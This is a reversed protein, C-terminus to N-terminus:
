AFWSRLMIGLILGIFLALSTLAYLSWRYEERFDESLENAARRATAAAQSIASEMNQISRLAAEAAGQYSDGLTSATTKFEASVKEMQAASHALARATQPITSKVFEQHLSENINAAIARPSIGAAIELPLRSLREDLQRQYAQGSLLTKQLTDLASEFLKEFREGVAAARAPAQVMLLTLYQMARLIRLMEDNEPLSRCHRLERYYDARVEAPLANAIRDILDPEPLNLGPQAIKKSNM